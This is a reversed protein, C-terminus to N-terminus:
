ERGGILVAPIREARGSAGIGGASVIHEVIYDLRARIKELDTKNDCPEAPHVESRLLVLESKLFPLDIPLSGSYSDLLQIVRSNEFFRLWDRSDDKLDSRARERARDVALCTQTYLQYLAVNFNVSNKEV